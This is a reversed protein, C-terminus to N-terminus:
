AAEKPKRRRRQRFEFSPRIEPVPQVDDLFVPGGCHLCRLPKGAQARYQTEIIRPQFRRTAGTENPEQILTGSIKGCLYCKVDATTKRGASRPATTATSM